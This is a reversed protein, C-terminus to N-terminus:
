KPRQGHAGDYQQGRVIIQEADEFTFRSGCGKRSLIILWLARRTWAAVLILLARSFNQLYHLMPTSSVSTRAASLTVDVDSRKAATGGLYLAAEVGAVM